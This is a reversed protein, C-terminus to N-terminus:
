PAFSVRTSAGPALPVHPASVVTLPSWDALTPLTREVLLSIETAFTTPNHVHLESRDWNVELRVHDFAVARRRSVDVYVGPIEYATLLASISSWCDVAFGEGIPTHPAEWDCTNVRECSGGPPLDFLVRDPRSLYQTVGRAISKLLDLYIRQGTQRYLRLLSQGSLTCIGPASHKNQANAWVSGGSRIGAKGLTSDVPFDYDYPMVWTAAHAAAREAQSWRESDSTAEGLRVLSELLAFASESDPAQAAEGPGGNTFGQREFLAVLSDAAHEARGAWEPEGLALSAEVFAGPIIAGSTTDGSRIEGSDQAVFMGFQGHREFIAWLAEVARRLGMTWTAEIPHGLAQKLRLTRALFYAVDGSRRVLHWDHGWEMGVMDTDFVGNRGVSWFLCSPHQAPGCVFDLMREVRERTETDQEHALGFMQIGGGVWGSQWCGYEWSGDSLMYYGEAENWYRQNHKDVVLRRAASFPLDEVEHRTWFENWLRLFSAEWEVRTITQRLSMRGWFVSGPSAAAGRDPSTQGGYVVGERVGPFWVTVTGQAQDAEIGTPGWDTHEDFAVWAGCDAGFWGLSPAAGDRALLQFKPLGPLMATTVPVGVGLDEPERLICPYELPRMRFRNGSYIAGPFCLTGLSEPPVLFRVGLSIEGRGQSLVEGRVMGDDASARVQWGEAELHADPWEGEVEVLRHNGDFVRLVWQRVPQM